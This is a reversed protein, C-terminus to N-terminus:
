SLKQRQQTPGSTTLKKNDIIQATHDITNLIATNLSLQALSQNVHLSPDSRTHCRTQITKNNNNEQMDNHKNKNINKCCRNIFFLSVVFNIISDIELLYKKLKQKTKLKKTTTTAEVLFTLSHFCVCKQVCCRCTSMFFTTLKCVCVYM